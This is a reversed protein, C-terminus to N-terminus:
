QAGGTTKHGRTSHHIMADQMAFSLPLCVIEDTKSKGADPPIIGGM